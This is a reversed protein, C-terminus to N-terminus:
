EMKKFKLKFVEIPAIATENFTFEGNIVYKSQQIRNISGNFHIINEEDDPCAAFRNMKIIYPQFPNCNKLNSFFGIIIFHVLIIRYRMSTNM